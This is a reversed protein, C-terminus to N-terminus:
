GTVPLAPPTIPSPPATPVTPVHEVWNSDCAQTPNTPDCETNDAPTLTVVNDINFDANFGPVVQTVRSFTVRGGPAVTVQASIVGSGSTPLVTSGATAAATWTGPNLGAPVNDIITGHGTTTASANTVTVTYTVTQGPSLQESPLASKLVRLPAAPPDSKFSTSADCTPAGDECATLDGPTAAGTNTITGGPFSAVIPAIIIFTVTGAPALTVVVATPPGTGSAPVVTTGNGATMTAWVAAARDLETPLPDAFTAHAAQTASLNTLTVRYIVNQGPQPLPDTPLHTKVISVLSPTPFDETASCSPDEAPDCQTNEGPQSVSTNIVDGGPWDSRVTAHVTFTVSGGTVITVQANIPGSGSTPTVMSEGVPTAATTWTIGTLAPSDFPDSITAHAQTAQGAGNSTNTVTVTYTVPQGQTPIPPTHTKTIALTAPTPTATFTDSGDCTPQGNACATDADTNPTVTGVNHVTVPGAIPLMTATIAFTVVGGPAVTIAVPTPVGPSGTGAPAGCLSGATAACTWTAAAVNLQTPLPDSFTGVGVVSTSNSVLVRYVVQGGPRPVAPSRAKVVNLRALGFSDEAVCEPEGDACETNTGPTATAVNIIDGSVFSTSVTAEITFAVSEGPQIILAVGTPFGTGSEQSSSPIATTAPTTTTTSWTGPTIEAPAPDNFTAHAITSPSLNTVTVTYTIAEGATPSPGTPSHSKNIELPAPDPTSTVPVDAPCKTATRDEECVTHDGPAATAANTITGGQFTPSVTVTITFTAVGLPLLTLVVGTINGTVPGTTSCSSETSAACIWSPDILGAPISDNITATATTTTSTNRVQLEYTFTEGPKPAATSATKSIIIPAPQLVETADPAECNEPDNSPPECNTNPAAVTATNEISTGTFTDAITGTVTVTFSNPAAHTLLTKIATLVGSAISATAGNTAVAGSPVFGAPLHDTVTVNAADAPGANTVTITYVLPDGVHVPDPSGSKTIVLSTSTRTTASATNTLSEGAKGLAHATATNDIHGAAIDAQAIVHTGTCTYSEAPALTGSRSCPAVLGTPNDPTAFLPDTVSTMHIDVGSTNTVTFTYTLSAGVTSYTPAVGKTLGVSPVPIATNLGALFYGDGSTTTTLKVSTDGAHVIGSALTWEVNDTSFNSTWNPNTANRAYSVFFNNTQGTVPHVINIDNVSFTDGTLGADGEGAILGVQVQDPDTVSPVTVVTNTPQGTSQQYVFGTQLTIQKAVQPPVSTLNVSPYQYVVVINWGLGAMNFGNAPFPADAGWVTIQGSKGALLPTVDASASYYYDNTDSAPQGPEISTGQDPQVSVYHQDDGISVKMPDMWINADWGGQAPSSTIGPNGSLQTTGLWSLEAFVVRADTPVTVTASSSRTTSPDTDRDLFRTIVQNNYTPRSGAAGPTLATQWDRVCGGAPLAAGSSLTACDLLTNGGQDFGGVLTQRYVPGIALRTNRVPHPPALSAAAARTTSPATFAPALGVLGAAVLLAPVMGRFLRRKRTM